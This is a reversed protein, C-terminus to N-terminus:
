GYPKRDDRPAYVLYYTKLFRLVGSVLSRFERDFVYLLSLYVSAGLLISPALELLANVAQVSLSRPKVLLVPPVMFLSLILYKGMQKFPLSWKLRRASWYAVYLSFPLNVLLRIIAWLTITASVTDPKFTSFFVVLIVLYTTFRALNLSPLKFLVSGLYSKFAKDRLEIDESGMLSTSSISSIGLLYSNVALISSAVWVTAYEPRLINLLPEAILIIGLTIPTSLMYVLRTSLEVDKVKVERLLHPYLGASLSLAISPLNGITFAATWFGISVTEGLIATIVIVDLSALSSVFTSYLPLWSLRIVDKLFGPNFRKWEADRIMLFEIFAKVAFAFAVSIFAGVLRMRLLLILFYAMVTKVIEFSMSGYQAVQPKFGLALSDICGAVFMTFLQLSAVVIVTHELRDVLLPSLAHFSVSAFVGVLLGTLVVTSYVQFGRSVYRVTWFNLINLPILFYTFVSSIYRWEGLEWPQLRRSVILSFLAGCGVAVISAVLSLLGVYRLRVRPPKL